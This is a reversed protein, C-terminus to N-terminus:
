EWILLQGLILRSQYFLNDLNTVNWRMIIDEVKPSKRKGRKLLHASIKSTHQLISSKTPLSMIPIKQILIKLLSTLSPHSSSLNKVIFAFTGLIKKKRVLTRTM